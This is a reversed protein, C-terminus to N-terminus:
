FDLGQYQIHKPVNAETWECTFLITFFSSQLHIVIVAHRFSLNERLKTIKVILDTFNNVM